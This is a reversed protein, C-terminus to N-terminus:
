PGGCSVSGDADVFISSTGGVLQGSADYFDVACDEGAYGAAALALVLICALAISSLVAVVALLVRQRHLLTEEM